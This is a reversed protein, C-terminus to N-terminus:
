KLVDVNGSQREIVFRPRARDDGSIGVRMKKDTRNDIQVKLGSLDKEGIRSTCLVYLDITDGTLNYLVSPKENGLVYTVVSAGDGQNEATIILTEEENSESVVKEADDVGAIVKAPVDSASPYLMIYFDYDKKIAEKEETIGGDYSMATGSEFINDTGIPIMLEPERLIRDEGKIAFQNITVTGNVEGTEENMNVSIEPIISKDQFSFVYDMFNKWMDYSLTLPIEMSGMTLKYPESNGPEISGFTYIESEDTYSVELVKTGFYEEIETAFLIQSVQSIEAPYQDLMLAFADDFIKTDRLYEEKKELIRMREDYDRQLISKEIAVAEIKKNIYGAGGFWSAAVIGLSVVLIVLDKDRSTMKM